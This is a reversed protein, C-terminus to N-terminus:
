LLCKFYRFSDVIIFPLELVAYELVIQLNFSESVIMFNLCSIKKRRNRNHFTFKVLGVCQEWCDMDVVFGKLFHALYLLSANGWTGWTLRSLNCVCETNNTSNEKGDDSCVDCDDLLCKSTYGWFSAWPYSLVCYGSSIHSINGSSQQDCSSPHSLM